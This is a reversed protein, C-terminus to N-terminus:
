VLEPTDPTEDALLAPQGPQLRHLFETARQAHSAAQVIMRKDNRLAELWNAIYAAHDDRIEPTLELDACLFASGLEAVLEETAYGEDGFRKRGFDRELRTKHKTWHICEHGLTAYFSESDRFTEIPPIQIFDNTVSYFAKNGRFQIDAKTAAFYADAHEIREISTLFKPPPRARYQEPLGEIQDVNFVSYGKLFPINRRVESGDEAQETKAITNAYVVQSGREGKRVHGGLELAQKFTMWTPSTFGREEAELWLMITNIGSYPLGNYRLPRLIRGDLHDANWPRAWPRVGQELDAIIRSTIRTYVDEGDAARQFKRKTKRRRQQCPTVTGIVPDVPLSSERDATRNSTTTLKKFVVTHGKTRAPM